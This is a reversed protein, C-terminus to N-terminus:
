DQLIGLRLKVGSATYTPTGTGNVAALYIDDTASVAKLPIGIGKVNAVSVGGLDKYDATGIDVFGLINVANADSISPASNETGMTVNASLFYITMASKQDDQDIVMLSQLVGTGDSVRLAADVQQTDALVDGSAYASTDLSLTVDVVKTIGGVVAGAQVTAQVAFTGANTVAQSPPAQVSASIQKWVAMASISTTDTATSKADTKAGLVTVAPDDSALTVRGAATATGAGTPVAAATVASAVTSDQVAFTGANTVAQSPPAQMSASIQKLLAILSVSTTDTATSKADTPEGIPILGTASRIQIPFSKGSAVDTVNATGSPGWEVKTYPHDVSGIKDIAFQDGGSGPNATVTTDAM